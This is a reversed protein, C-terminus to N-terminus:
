HSPHFESDTKGLRRYLVWYRRGPGRHYYLHYRQGEGVRIIYHDRHRRLWWPHSRDLHRWSREVEQIRLQKGQWTFAIPPGTGV